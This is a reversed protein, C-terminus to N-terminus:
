VSQISRKLLSTRGSSPRTLILFPRFMKDNIQCEVYYYYIITTNTKYLIMNQYKHSFNRFKQQLTHGILHFKAPITAVFLDATVSCSFQVTGM